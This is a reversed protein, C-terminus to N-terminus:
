QPAAQYLGWLSVFGCEGQDRHCQSVPHPQFLLTFTLPPLDQPGPPCRHGLSPLIAPVDCEPPDSRKIAVLTSSCSGPLIQGEGVVQGSFPSSATVCPRCHDVPGHSPHLHGEQALCAGELDGCHGRSGDKYGLPCPDQVKSLKHRLAPVM